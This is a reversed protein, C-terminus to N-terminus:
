RVGLSSTLFATRFFLIAGHHKLQIDTNICYKQWRSCGKFDLSKSQILIESKWPFSEVLLAQQLNSFGKLHPVTLHFFVSPFKHHKHSASIKPSTMQHVLLLQNAQVVRSYRCSLDCCLISHQDSVPGHVGYVRRGYLWFCLSFASEERM